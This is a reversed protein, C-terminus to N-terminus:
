SKEDALLSLELLRANAAHVAGLYDMVADRHVPAMEELARLLGADASRVEEMITRYCEDKGARDYLDLYKTTFDKQM